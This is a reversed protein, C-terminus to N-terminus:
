AMALEQQEEGETSGLAAHQSHKWHYAAVRRASNETGATPEQDIAMLM